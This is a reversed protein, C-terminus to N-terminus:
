SVSQISQNVFLYVAKSPKVSSIEYKYQEHTGKTVDALKINSLTYKLKFLSIHLCKDSFYNVKEKLQM